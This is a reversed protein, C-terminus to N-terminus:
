GLQEFFNFPFLVPHDIADRAIRTAFIAHHMAAVFRRRREAELRLAAISPFINFEIEARFRFRGPATAFSNSKVADRDPVSMEGAFVSLFRGLSRLMSM